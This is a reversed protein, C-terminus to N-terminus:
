AQARREASQILGFTIKGTESTLDLLKDLEAAPMFGLLYGIQLQTEVEMLSGHAVNLFRIFEKSTRRGYGEAINSPVSVAARRVQSTLGYQEEKPWTVTLQYVQKVLEMAKRWAVLDRYHKVSM